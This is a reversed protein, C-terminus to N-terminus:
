LKIIEPTKNYYLQTVRKDSLLKMQKQLLISRADSM